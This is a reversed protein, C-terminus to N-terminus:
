LEPFLTTKRELGVKNGTNIYFDLDTEGRESVSNYIGYPYRFHRQSHDPFADARELNDFADAGEEHCWLWWEYDDYMNELIPNLCEKQFRDLEGQSVESKWRMFFYEPEPEIYDTKLRNYFEEATEPKVNKSGKKQRISGKGGSLPRRIVNYRVGKVKLSGLEDAYKLADPSTLATLYTMTQLEFGSTLQKLLKEEDIDGKTKNEQLYVGKAKGRGIVDVSDWKGRLTMVRGSPLEYPIEFSIEPLLNERSKVDPHKKWFDLYVPFQVLCINYWKEIEYQSERFRNCLEACYKRLPKQWDEGAAVMEECLHWMNGYEIAKWFTEPQGLGEMTSVRFREKCVLYNSIMSQTTGDVIPGKWLPEPNLKVKKKKLKAALSM